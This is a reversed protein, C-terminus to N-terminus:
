SGISPGDAAVYVRRDGLPAELEATVLHIIGVPHVRRESRRLSQWRPCGSVDLELAVYEATEAVNVRASAADVCDDSQWSVDLERTSPDPGEPAAEGVARPPLWLGASIDAPEPLLAWWMLSACAAAAILVALTRAARRTVM